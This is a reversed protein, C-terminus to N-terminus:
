GDNRKVSVYAQDVSNKLKNADYIINSIVMTGLGETSDLCSILKEIVGRMIKSIELLNEEMPGAEKLIKVLV